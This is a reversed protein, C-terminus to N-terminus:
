ALLARTELAFSLGHEHGLDLLEELDHLAPNGGSITVLIPKGGALRLMEEVIQPPTLPTWEDKYQPLVAYLTDCWDCRFDCAGTRVFVTPTGILAGEGQLTPGFIESIPIPKM